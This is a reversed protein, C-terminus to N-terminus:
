HRKEYHHHHVEKPYELFSEHYDSIFSAFIKILNIDLDSNKNIFDIEIMGVDGFTKGILKAIVENKNSVIVFDATKAELYATAVNNNYEDYFIYKARSKKLLKGAISGIYRNLHYVDIDMLYPNFAGISFFRTIGRTMFNNNEYLDYYYRPCLFGTRIVKSTSQNNENFVFEASYSLFPSNKIVEIKDSNIQPNTYISSLCFFSLIIYVYKM